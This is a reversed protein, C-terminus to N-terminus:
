GALPALVRRRASEAGQNDQELMPLAGKAAGTCVRASTKNQQILRVASSNGTRAHDMASGTQQPQAFM